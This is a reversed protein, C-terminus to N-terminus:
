RALMESQDPLHRKGLPVVISDTEHPACLTSRQTRAGSPLRCRGFGLVGGKQAPNTKELNAADRATRDAESPVIRNLFEVLQPEPLLGEFSLVPKGDRFAVVTPLANVAYRGALAQEEDTNVKALLVEGRRQGILRELIPALARCPGCWPAWFDVVVPTERSKQLVASDFDKESVSFVLGSKENM